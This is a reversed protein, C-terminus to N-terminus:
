MRFINTYSRTHQAHEPFQESPNNESDEKKYRPEDIIQLLSRDAGNLTFGAFERQTMVPDWGISAFYQQRVQLDQEMKLAKIHAGENHFTRITNKWFRLFHFTTSNKLDEIEKHIRQILQATDRSPQQCGPNIEANQQWAEFNQMKAHRIVTIQEFQQLNEKNKLSEEQAKVISIEFIYNQNTENKEAPERGSLDQEFFSEGILANDEEEMKQVDQNSDTEQENDVFEDQRIIEYQGTSLDLKFDFNEDLPESLNYEVFFRM